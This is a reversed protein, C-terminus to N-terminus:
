STGSSGTPLTPDRKIEDVVRGAELLVDELYLFRDMVRWSQPDEGLQPALATAAREVRETAAQLRAVVDTLEGWAEDFQALGTDLQERRYRGQQEM